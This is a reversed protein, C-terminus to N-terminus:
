PVTLEELVFTGAIILPPLACAILSKAFPQNRVLAVILLIANAAFFVLSVFGWIVLGAMLGAGRDPGQSGTSELWIAAPILLAVFAVYAINRRGIKRWWPLPAPALAAAPTTAMPGDSM